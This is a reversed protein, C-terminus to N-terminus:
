SAKHDHENCYCTLGKQHLNCMRGQGYRRTIVRLPKRVASERRMILYEQPTGGVSEAYNFGESMAAKLTGGCRCGTVKMIREIEKNVMRHWGVFTPPAKLSRTHGAVENPSLREVIATDMEATSWFKM